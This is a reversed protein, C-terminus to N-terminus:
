HDTADITSNLYASLLPATWLPLRDRDFWAATELEVPDPHLMPASVEAALIRVHHRGRLSRLTGLDRWAGIDIGLEETMERRAVAPAAEGHRGAGGPLDWARSGYSHRVLLVRDGDTIVCKVGARRVRALVWVLGLIRSALRYGIRRLAV